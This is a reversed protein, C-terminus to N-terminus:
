QRMLRRDTPFFSINSPLGETDNVLADSLIAALHDAQTGQLGQPQIRVIPREHGLREMVEHIVMAFVDAHLHGSPDDTFEFGLKYRPAMKGTQYWLELM